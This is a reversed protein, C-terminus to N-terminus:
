SSRGSVKLARVWLFITCLLAILGFGAAVFFIWSTGFKVAVYGLISASFSGLGFTCFYSIGYLRGRWNAPSYDALLSNYVPQGMFNFFAFAAATIM